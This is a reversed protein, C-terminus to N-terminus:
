SPQGTQIPQTVASDPQYVTVSAPRLLVGRDAWGPADVRAITGVLGTQATPQAGEATHVAPDFREGQPSVPVVGVAALEQDLRDTLAKSTLRDRLYLSAAVLRAREQAAVGDGPVPVPAPAVPAPTIALSVAGALVAAVVAIAAATWSGTSLAIALASIVGVVAASALAIRRRINEPM